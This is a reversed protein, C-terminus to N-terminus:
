AIFSGSLFGAWLFFGFMVSEAVILAQLWWRRGLALAFAIWVPFLVVLFRPASVLAGFGLSGFMYVASYLGLAFDFRFVRYVLIPALILSGWVLFSTALSVSLYPVPLSLAALGGRPLVRTLYEPLSYMGAWKTSHAYAFADGVAGQLFIWWASIATLTPLTISAIRKGLGATGDTLAKVGLPMLFIYGPPRSLTALGALIGAPLYRRDLCLSWSALTLALFLGEAYAVTTFVLTVPSLAFLLTSALATRRSTYKECVMQFLPIWVAGAIFAVVVLSEVSAYTLMSVVWTMAPLLPYFSASESVYGYGREVITLYWASDWGLFVLPWRSGSGADVLAQNQPLYTIPASAWYGGSGLGLM